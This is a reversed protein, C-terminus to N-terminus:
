DYENEDPKGKERLAPSKEFREVEELTRIGNKRCRQLQAIRERLRAEKLLSALLSDFEKKSLFRAFPKM